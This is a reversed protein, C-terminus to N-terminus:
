DKFPFGLKKLLLYGADDGRASTVVSVELGFPMDMEEQAQEPFVMHERIGLSYNGKGDFGKRSIGRFDRTRPLAVNVLKDLFDYMRKGRLTVSAGVIQGERIKFASIAKKARRLVPKQGTIRALAAVVHDLAKPQQQLLRGIGANVTVKAVRPVAFDNELALETKLEPRVAKKFQELLRSM